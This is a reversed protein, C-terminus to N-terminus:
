GGGRVHEDPESSRRKRLRDLEAIKQAADNWNRAKAWFARQERRQLVRGIARAGAFCAASLLALALLALALTM